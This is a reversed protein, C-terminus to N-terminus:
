QQTQLTRYTDKCAYIYTHKYTPLYTSRFGSFREPCYLCAAQLSIRLSPLQQVKSIRGGINTQVLILARGAITGRVSPPSPATRFTSRAPNSSSPEYLNWMIRTTNEPPRASTKRVLPLPFTIKLAINKRNLSLFLPLSHTLSLSPFLFFCLCITKPNGDM